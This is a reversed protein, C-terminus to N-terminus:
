DKSHGPLGAQGNEFPNSRRHLLDMGVREITDKVEKLINARAQQFQARIFLVTSKQSAEYILKDFDDHPDCKSSKGPHNRRGYAKVRALVEKGVPLVEQKLWSTLQLLEREVRDFGVEQDDKYDEPSTDAQDPREKRKGLNAMDRTAPPIGDGERNSDSAPASASAPAYASAPAPSPSPSPISAPAPSPPPSPSYQIEESPPGPSFPVPTSATAPTPAPVPVPTPAPASTRSPSPGSAPSVTPAPAPASTPIIPSGPSVPGVPVQSFPESEGSSQAPADHRSSSRYDLDHESAAQSSVTRELSVEERDNGEIPVPNLNPFNRYLEDMNQIIEVTLRRPRVGAMKYHKYRGSLDTFQKMCLSCLREESIGFNNPMCAVVEDWHIKGEKTCAVRIATLLNIRTVNSWTLQHGKKGRPKGRMVGLGRNKTDVSGKVGSGKAPKKKAPVTQPFLEDFIDIVGRTLRPPQDGDQKFKTYARYLNDFQKACLRGFMTEDLDSDNQLRRAVEKWKLTHAKGEGRVSKVVEVLQLRNVDTWPYKTKFGDVPM